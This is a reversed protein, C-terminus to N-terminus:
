ARRASPSSGPLGDWKTLIREGKKGDPTLPAKHNLERVTRERVFLSEGGRAMEYSIEPYFCREEDKTEMRVTGGDPSSDAIKAAFYFYKDDYALYGLSLGM